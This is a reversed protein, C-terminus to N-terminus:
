DQLAAATIMQRECVPAQPCQPRPPTTNLTGLGRASSVVSYGGWCRWVGSMGGEAWPPSPLNRRM